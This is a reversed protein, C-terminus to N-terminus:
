YPLDANSEGAEATEAADSSRGKWDRRPTVPKESERRNRVVAYFEVKVLEGDEWDELDLSAMVPFDGSGFGQVTLLEARSAKLDDSLAAEKSSYVYVVKDDNRVAPQVQNTYRAM